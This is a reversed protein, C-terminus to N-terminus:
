FGNRSRIPAGVIKEALGATRRMAGQLILEPRLWQKGPYEPGRLCERLLVSRFSKREGRKTIRRLREGGRIERDPSGPSELVESKM